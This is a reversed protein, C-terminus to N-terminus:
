FFAYHSYDMLRGDHTLKQFLSLIDSKLHEPEIKAAFQGLKSAASRRVMPMDDQCLQGYISRLEDKLTGSASPYPIHFLGCSSVRSTFWEGSALRQSM